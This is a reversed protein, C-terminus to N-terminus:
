VGHGKFQGAIQALVGGRDIGGKVVPQGPGVEQRWSQM